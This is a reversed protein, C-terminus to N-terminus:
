STHREINGPSEEREIAIPVAALRSAGFLNRYNRENTKQFSPSM